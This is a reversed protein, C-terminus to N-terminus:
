CLCVVEGRGVPSRGKVSTQFHLAQSVSSCFSPPKDWIPDGRVNEYLTFNRASRRCRVSGCLSRREVEGSETVKTSQRVCLCTEGLHWRELENQTGITRPPAKDQRVVGASSARVPCGGAGGEARGDGAAQWRVGRRCPQSHTEEELRQEVQASLDIADLATLM